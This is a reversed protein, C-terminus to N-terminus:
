KNFDELQKFLDGGFDSEKKAPKGQNKDAPKDAPKEKSKEAVDKEIVEKKHTDLKYQSLTVRKVNIKPPLKGENLAVIGGANGNYYIRFPADKITPQYSVGKIELESEWKPHIILKGNADAIGKVIPISFRIKYVGNVDTVANEYGIGDVMVQIDALPVGEEDVIEGKLFGEFWDTYNPSSFFMFKKYGALKKTISLDALRDPSLNENITTIKGTSKKGILPFGACGTFVTLLFYFTPLLFLMNFIKTKWMSGKGKSMPCQVDSKPSIRDNM